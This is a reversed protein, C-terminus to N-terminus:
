WSGGGGGGFGGGSSGGSFGSSGGGAGSGSNPAIAMMHSSHSLSQLFFLSNWNTGSTDFYSPPPVHLSDFQKVWEKEVGLAVAAPLFEAFQEPRRAPADTFALRQEETVQLFRKFGMVHEQVLAGERTVRPMFRSFLAVPVATLFLWITGTFYGVAVMVLSLTVWANRVRAPNKRFWGRVVVDKLLAAKVGELEKWREGTPPTNLNIEFGDAFLAKLLAEEYPQRAEKPEPILRRLYVKASKSGPEGEFSFKVWGRRALDLLLCILVTSHAAQHILVHMLAPSAGAPPGYEPIIVGRGKPDRGWLFWIGFMLVAVVLPIFVTPNEKLFFLLTTYWSETAVSGKPFALVVTLGEGVDLPLLSRSEVSNTSTTYRISCDQATSGYAGTFCDLRTVTPGHFLFDAKRIPVEWENGTVNWYLEQHESFENIARPTHYRIVYTHVGTIEKDASGIRLYLADGDSTQTYPASQGDVLVEEVTLGLGYEFWSRKYVDKIFRTIGHHGSETGFDYTITEEINLQRDPQLDAVVSFREVSEASVQAACLFSLAILSLMMGRRVFSAFSMDENPYGERVSTM